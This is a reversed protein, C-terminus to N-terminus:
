NADVPVNIERVETALRSAPAIWAGVVLELIVEGSAHKTPLYKWRLLVKGATEGEKNLAAGARREIEEISLKTTLKHGLRATAPWLLNARNLSGEPSHGIVARHGEVAVGNIERMVFTKYRLLMAPGVEMQKGDSNRMVLKKTMLRGIEEAPVGLRKLLDVSAEKLKADDVAIADDATPARRTIFVAGEHPDRELRWSKTLEVVRDRTIAVASEVKEPFRDFSQLINEAEFAKLTLRATPLEPRPATALRSSDFEFEAACVAPLVVVCSVTLILCRLIAKTMKM